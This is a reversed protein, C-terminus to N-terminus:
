EIKTMKMSEKSNDWEGNWNVNSNVEVDNSDFFWTWLYAEETSWKSLDLGKVNISIQENESFPSPSVSWTVNSQIQGFLFSISSFFLIYFFNYKM